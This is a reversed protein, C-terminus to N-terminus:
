NWDHDTACRSIRSNSEEFQNQYKSIKMGRLMKNTNIYISDIDMVTVLLVWHFNLFCLGSRFHYFLWFTNTLCILRLKLLLLFSLPLNNKSISLSNQHGVAKMQLDTTDAAHWLYLPHSVYRQEYKDLLKKNMNTNLNYITNTNKKCKYKHRGRTLSLLSSFCIKTRQQNINTWFQQDINTICHTTLNGM